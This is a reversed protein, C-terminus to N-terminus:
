LCSFRRLLIHVAFYLFTSAWAKTCLLIRGRGGDADLGRLRRECATVSHTRPLPPHYRCAPRRTPCLRRPRTTKRAQRSRFEMQCCCDDRNASLMIYVSRWMGWTITSYCAFGPSGDESEVAITLSGQRSAVKEECRM